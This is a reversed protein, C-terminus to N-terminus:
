FDFVGGYVKKGFVVHLVADIIYFIGTIIGFVGGTTYIDMEDTVESVIVDLVNGLVKNFVNLIDTTQDVGDSAAVAGDTLWAGAALIIVGLVLHIIAFIELSKVIGLPVMYKKDMGM